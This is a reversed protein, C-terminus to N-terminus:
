KKDWSWVEMTKTQRLRYISIEKETEILITKKIRILKVGCMKSVNKLIGSIIMYTCSKEDKSMINLKKCYFINNIRQCNTSVQEKEWTAYKDVYGNPIDLFKATDKELTPISYFKQIKGFNDERLPVTVITILMNDKPIVTYKALRRFVEYNANSSDIALNLSEDDIEVECSAKMISEFSILKTNLINNRLDILSQHIENIRADTASFIANFRTALYALLCSEPSFSMIPLKKRKNKVNRNRREKIFKLINEHHNIIEVSDNLQSVTQKILKSFM